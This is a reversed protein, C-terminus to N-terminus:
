HYKFNSGVAVVAESLVLATLNDETLGIGDTFM